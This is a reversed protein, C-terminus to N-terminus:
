GPCPTPRTFIVSFFRIMLWWNVQTEDGGFVKGSALGSAPLAGCKCGEVCDVANLPFPTVALDGTSSSKLRETHNEWARSEKNFVNILSLQGGTSNKGGVSYINDGLRILKHQYRGLSATENLIITESNMSLDYIEDQQIKIPSVSSNVGGSILIVYKGELELTQCSHYVRGLKLPPLEEATEEDFNIKVVTNVAHKEGKGNPVGGIWVFENRTLQVKCASSTFISFTTQNIWRLNLKTWMDKNLIAKSSQDGGLLTLKNGQVYSTHRHPSGKISSNEQSYKLALLNTRPSDINLYKFKGGLKKDGVLILQDDLLDITQGSTSFNSYKLIVQNCIKQTSFIELSGDSFALLAAAPNCCYTSPNHPEFTGDVCTM